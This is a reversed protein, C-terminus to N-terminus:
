KRRIHTICSGDPQEQTEGFFGRAELKAYLHMPRRDTRACLSAGPPLASVAELIKV